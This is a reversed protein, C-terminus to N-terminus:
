QGREERLRTNHNAIEKHIRSIIPAIADRQEAFQPNHDAHDIYPVDIGSFYDHGLKLPTFHKSMSESHNSNLAQTEEKTSILIAHMDEDMLYKVIWFDYSERLLYAASSIVIYSNHPATSLPLRHEKGNLNAWVQDGKREASLKDNTNLKWDLRKIISEEQQLWAIWQFNDEIEDRSILDDVHTEGYNRLLGDVKDDNPDDAYLATVKLMRELDRIM